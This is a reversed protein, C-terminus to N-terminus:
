CGRVDYEHWRGDHKYYTVVGICRDKDVTWTIRRLEQFGKKMFFSNWYLQEWNKFDFLQIAVEGDDGENKIWVYVECKAGKEAEIEINGPPNTWERGNLRITVYTIKPKAHGKPKPKPKRLGHVSVDSVTCRNADWYFRITVPNSGGADTYFVLRLDIWQSRNGYDFCSDPGGLPFEVSFSESVTKEKIRTEDSPNSDTIRAIDIYRFPNSCCDCRAKIHFADTHTWRPIEYRAFFTARLVLGLTILAYGCRGAAIYAREVELDTVAFEIVRM